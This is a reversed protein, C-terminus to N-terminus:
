FRFGLGAGLGYDSDLTTVLSVRKSVTCSLSSSWSFKMATDYEARAALSVRTTLQLMKGLALRADGNSQLTAAFDVLYPLRHNFGAIVADHGGPINMLRYGAFATWRPNFYRSVTADIEYERREVKEWGAEWLLNLNDRGRQITGLGTSLHSQISADIWAYTHPMAHEGLAPRYAPAPPSNLTEAKASAKPSLSPQSKLRFRPRPQITAPPRPNKLPACKM